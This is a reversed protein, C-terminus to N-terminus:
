RLVWIEYLFAAVGFGVLLCGIFFPTGYKIKDIRSKAVAWNDTFLIMMPIGIIFLTAQLKIIFDLGM